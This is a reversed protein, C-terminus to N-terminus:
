SVTYYLHNRDYHCWGLIVYEDEGYSDLEDHLWDSNNYLYEMCYVLGGNPGYGYEEMVSDLDVLDRIDFDAEYSFFEAAPDLNGIHMSRKSLRCHEQMTRCYSSKGVGAPGLVLQVFRGM